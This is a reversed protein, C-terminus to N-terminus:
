LIPRWAAGASSEADSLKYEIYELPNIDFCSELLGSPLAASKAFIRGVALLWCGVALLWCGVAL